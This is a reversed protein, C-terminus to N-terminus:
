RSQEWHGGRRRISWQVDARGDGEDILVHLRHGKPTLRVFVEAGDVATVRVTTANPYDERV